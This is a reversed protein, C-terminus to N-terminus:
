AEEAEDQLGHSAALHSLRHADWSNAVITKEFDYTLGAEHAMETVHRNLDRAHEVTWGKREALYEHINRSPDAKVSPDLQFTKWRLQVQDRHEFQQLAKEFKRKGIYCFPCTFDSWIEVMMKKNKTM